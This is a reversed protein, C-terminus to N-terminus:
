HVLLARMFFSLLSIVLEIKSSAVDIYKNIKLRTTVGDEVSRRFSLSHHFPTDLVCFFESRRLAGKSTPYFYKFFVTWGSLPSRQRRNLILPFRRMPSGVIENGLFAFCTDGDSSFVGPFLLTRLRALALERAIDTLSGSLGVSPM